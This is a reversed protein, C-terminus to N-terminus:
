GISLVPVMVTALIRGSAGAISAPVETDPADAPLFAEAYPVGAPTHHVEVVAKPVASAALSPGADVSVMRVATPDTRGEFVLGERRLSVREPVFGSVIVPAEGAAPPLDTWRFPSTAGASRIREEFGALGVVPAIAPALDTGSAVGVSRMVVSSRREMAWAPVVHSAAVAGLATATRRLLQRRSIERRTM